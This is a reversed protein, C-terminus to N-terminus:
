IFCKYTLILNWGCFKGSIDWPGDLTSLLPKCNSPTLITIYGIILEKEGCSKLLYHEDKLAYGLKLERQKNPKFRSGSAIETVGFLYTCWGCGSIINNVFKWDLREPLGFRAQVKSISASCPSIAPKLDVVTSGGLLLCKPLLAQSLM